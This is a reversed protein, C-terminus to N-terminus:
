ASAKKSPKVDKKIRASLSTEILKLRKEGLDKMVWGVLTEDTVKQIPIFSKSQHSVTFSCDGYTKYFGDNSAKIAKFSVATVGGKIDVTKNVIQIEISM